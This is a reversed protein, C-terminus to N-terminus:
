SSQKELIIVLLFAAILYIGILLGHPIDGSIPALYDAPNRTINADVTNDQSM